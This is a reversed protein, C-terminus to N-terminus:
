YTTLIKLRYILYERLFSSEFKKKIKLRLYRKYYHVSKKPWRVRDLSIYFSCRHWIEPGNILFRLYDSSVTVVYLRWNTCYSTLLQLRYILYERLFRPEFILFFFKIEFIKKRLQGIKKALSRSRFIYLLQIQALNLSSQIITARTITRFRFRWNKCFYNKELFCICIIEQFKLWM